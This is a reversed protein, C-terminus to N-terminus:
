HVDIVEDCLEEIIARKMLELHGIQHVLHASDFSKEGERIMKWDVCDSDEVQALGEIYTIQGQQAMRLLKELAKVMTSNHIHTIDGM